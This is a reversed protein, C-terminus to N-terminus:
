DNYCDFICENTWDEARQTDSRRSSTMERYTAQSAFKAPMRAPSFAAAAKTRSTVSMEPKKFPAM